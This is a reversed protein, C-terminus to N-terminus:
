NVDELEKIRTRLENNYEQDLCRNLFELAKLKDVIKYQYLDALLLYIYPNNSDTLTLLLEEAKIYDRNNIYFISKLYKFYLDDKYFSNLNNLLDDVKKVNEILIAEELDVLLDNYTSVKIILVNEIDYHEATIISSPITKSIVTVSYTGFELDPIYFKGDIDTTIVAVEKGTITNFSVKVNQIPNSKNDFVVGILANSLTVNIVETSKCSLLLLSIIFLLIKKM